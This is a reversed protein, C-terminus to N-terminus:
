RSAMAVPGFSGGQLYNMVVPVRVVNHVAIQVQRPDPKRKFIVDFLSLHPNGSMGGGDKRGTNGSGDVDHRVSIAYTGAAAVPVCVEVAGKAPVPVEIRRLYQGKDFYHQPDGGYSQIRVMGTRAKLGQVDVLIAPGTAGPACAQADPGLAAAAAGASSVALLGGLVAAVLKSM